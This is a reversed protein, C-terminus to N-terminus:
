RRAGAGAFRYTVTVGVLHADFRFVGDNQAVGGAVSRGARNAQDLYMYAVDAAVRAGFQRGLGVTWAARRAEPLVPTVSQAPAAAQNTAWGARVMTRAGLLYEGGVRYGWTTRYRQELVEAPLREFELRVDDFVSWNTWQADVMVQLRTMPRVAVGVVAQEPAVLATRARQTVLAGTGTFQPAVVRDFPTGRPIVIAGTAPDRIDTAANVGTPVQTITAEGDDYRFVQRGLWRAGVSVADHAWWLVGAHWGLAVDNATLNVDAVDTGVPVGLQAFTTPGIGTRQTALDVRRQLRVASIGVNVGAGVSLDGFRAAITPQVHTVRLESRYGVFRGESGPAWTLSLGYPSFVGLGVGVRRSLPAVLYVNPSVIPPQDLVSQRGSAAHTFSGSPAVVTAGIGVLGASGAIGAPNFVLTSGDACPAAVAAGARAMACAGQEYLGYGQAALPTVGAVATTAVILRM